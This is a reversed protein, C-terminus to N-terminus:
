RCRRRCRGPWRLPLAAAPPVGGGGRGAGRSQARRSAAPTVRSTRVRSTRSPSSERPSPAAGIVAGDVLEDAPPLRREFEAGAKKPGACARQFLVVAVDELHEGIRGGRLCRLRDLRPSTGGVLRDHDLWITARDVQGLVGVSRGPQGVAPAGRTRSGAADACRQGGRRRMRAPLGM